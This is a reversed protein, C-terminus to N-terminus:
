LDKEDTYEEIIEHIPKNHFPDDNIEKFWDKRWEYLTGWHLKDLRNYYRNKNILDDIEKYRSEAEWNRKQVKTLMNPRIRLVFIGPEIFRYLTEWIRRNGDYHAVPHFYIQEDPNLNNQFESESLDRLKQEYMKKYKWKGRKRRRIKKFSKYPSYQIVNIKELIQRFFEAKETFKISEDLEFLRKYGRQIPEELEEYEMNRMIERLKKREADLALLYKDFAKKKRSKKWHSPRIKNIYNDM